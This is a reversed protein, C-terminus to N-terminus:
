QYIVDLLDVKIVAFLRRQDDLLTPLAELSVVPQERFQTNGTMQVVSHFDPDSITSCLDIFTM